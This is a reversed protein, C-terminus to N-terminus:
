PMIAQHQHRGGFILAEFPAVALDVRQVLYRVLNCISNPNRACRGFGIREIMLDLGSSHLDRIWNGTEDNAIRIEPALFCLCTALFAALIAGAGPQQRCGVLCAGPHDANQRHGM